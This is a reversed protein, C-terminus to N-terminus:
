NLVIIASEGDRIVEFVIGLRLIGDCANPGTDDVVSHVSPVILVEGLWYCERMGLGLPPDVFPGGRQENRVRVEDRVVSDIRRGIRAVPLFM